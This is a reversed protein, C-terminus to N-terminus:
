AEKKLKENARKVFAAYKEEPLLSLREAAFEGLLSRAGTLGFRNAVEQLAAHAEEKTVAANPKTESSSTNPASTGTPTSAKEANKPAAAKKGGGKKAAKPKTTTEVKVVEAEEVEEIDKPADRLEPEPRIVTAQMNGTIVVGPTAGIFDLLHQKTPFQVRLEIM